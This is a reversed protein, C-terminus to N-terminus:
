GFFGWTHHFNGWVACVATLRVKQGLLLTKSLCRDAVPTIGSVYPGVDEEDWGNRRTVRSVRM